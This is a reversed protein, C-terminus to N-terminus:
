NRVRPEAQGPGSGQYQAQIARLLTRALELHEAHSHGDVPTDPHQERAVQIAQQLEGRYQRLEKVSKDIERVVSELADPVTKLVNVTNTAATLAEDRESIAARVERELSGLSKRFEASTEQIAATCRTVSETMDLMAARFPQAVEVRLAAGLGEAVLLKLGSASDLVAEAVAAPLKDQLDRNSREIREAAADLASVADGGKIRVERFIPGLQTAVFEELREALLDYEELQQWRLTRAYLAVAVGIVSVAAKLVVGSLFGSELFGGASMMSVVWVQAGLGLVAGLVGLTFAREHFRQLRDVSLVAANELHDRLADCRLDEGGAFRRQVWGLAARSLGDVQTVAPLKEGGGDSASLAVGRSLRLFERWQDANATLRSDFMVWEDRAAGALRTAEERARRALVALAILPLASLTTVVGGAVWSVAWPSGIACFLLALAAGGWILGEPGAPPATWRGRAFTSM